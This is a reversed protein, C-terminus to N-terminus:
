SQYVFILTWLLGFVLALVLGALANNKGAQTVTRGAPDIRGADMGALDNHAMWWAPVGCGVAFLVGLPGTCVALSGAFLAYTGLWDILGGRHALADRRTHWSGRDEGDAPDFPHSCHACYSDNWGVPRHCKPCLPLRHRAPGRRPGGEVPEEDIVETPNLAYTKSEQVPAPEGAVFTRECGICRIRRGLQTEDVLVRCDCAPCAAMEPM